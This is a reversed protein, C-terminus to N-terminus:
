VRLLRGSMAVGLLLIGLILFAASLSAAHAIFGIAAPGALIGLYGLTTIAPVAVYEPMVTQRGVSTYLVPVINSCGVGILAYGLLTMQWWPVLTAFAFGASACIGGIAIVGTGGFRQVIRDGTLRGISMTLSFVAYGLGGYATEVGRVSTLFVASWDLMAGEALFAIFCLAGIFLVVGHPMAFAPGERESGQPLLHSAAMALAVIIGGVVCLTATLPSAGAGLLAAVCAAGAMGGISFLGHFGSMMARGSAREVIIAQINMTVDIAGLSAGFVLLAVALLAPSSVTALLPLVLCLPVTSAIVVRRCGFRAALDGALSMTVLSGVGLCLLLLGLAGDGIAARAKAFPVLPAWAAMGFGAIFFVIRTSRQELRRTSSIVSGM